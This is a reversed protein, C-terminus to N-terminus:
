EYDCDFYDNGIQKEKRTRNGRGKRLDMLTEIKDGM